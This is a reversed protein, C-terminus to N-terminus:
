WSPNSKKELRINFYKTPLRSMRITGSMASKTSGFSFSPSDKMNVAFFFPIKDFVLETYESYM